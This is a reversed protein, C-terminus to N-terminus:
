DGQEGSCVAVSRITTKTATRIETLREPVRERRVTIRQVRFGRATERHIQLRVSLNGGARSESARESKM